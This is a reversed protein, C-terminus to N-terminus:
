RCGPLEPTAGADGTGGDPPASSPAWRGTACLTADDIALSLTGPLMAMPGLESVPARELRGSAIIEERPSAALTAVMCDLGGNQLFHASGARRLFIRTARLRGPAPQDREDVLWFAKCANCCPARRREGTAPDITACFMTKCGGEQITLFGRVSVRSGLAAETMRGAELPEGPAGDCAPISAVLAKQQPLACPPPPLPAPQAHAVPPPAPRPHACGVLALAAISVSTRLCTGARDRGRRLAM